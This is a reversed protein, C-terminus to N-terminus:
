GFRIRFNKRKPRLSLSHCGNRTWKWPYFFKLIKNISVIDSELNLLRFHFIKLCFRTNEELAAVIHNFRNFVKILKFLNQSQTVVNKVELPHLFFGRSSDIDVTIIKKGIM